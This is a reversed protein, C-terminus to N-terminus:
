LTRLASQEMRVGHIADRRRKEGTQLLITTRRHLGPQRVKKRSAVAAMRYLLNFTHSRAGVRFVAFERVAPFRRPAKLYIFSSDGHLLKGSQEKRQCQHQGQQGHRRHRFVGCGGTDQGIQVHGVAFVISGISRYLSKCGVATPHAPQRLVTIELEHIIGAARRELVPRNEVIGNVRQEHRQIDPINYANGVNGLRGSLIKARLVIRQRRKEQKVAVFDFRVAAKGHVAESHGPRSIGEHHIRVICGKAVIEVSDNCLHFRISRQVLQNLLM